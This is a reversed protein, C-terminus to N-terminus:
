SYDPEALSRRNNHSGGAGLQARLPERQRFGQLLEDVALECGFAVAIHAFIETRQQAIGLLLFFVRTQLGQQKLAQRSAIIERHRALEPLLNLRFRAADGRLM